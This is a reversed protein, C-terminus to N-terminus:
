DVEGSSAKPEVFMARAEHWMMWCEPATRLREDLHRSYQTLVEEVGSPSEICKISLQRRGNRPDFGCSFLAVSAQARMALDVLGAPLMVPEGLLTVRIAAQPNRAPLDLMGVMCGGSAFVERVLEISGGTYLPGLSGIRSLIWGRLRGYWLAIRSAGLDAVQPRRAVFFAEFGQKKLLKFVWYGAGWHYTLFLFPRGPEPWSGSVDVHRNWWSTSRTLALYTDVREIWRTLRYNSKWASEAPHSVHERAVTWAADAESRFSTTRVALHRLLRFTIAWPLLALLAPMVILGLTDAAARRTRDVLAAFEGNM